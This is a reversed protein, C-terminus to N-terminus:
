VDQAAEAPAGLTFSFTAGAGPRGEARIEGHHRRVIRAVTALGVGTGPFEEGSHLRQFPTFLRGAYAMDFGAGNDRVFFEPRGAREGADFEIRAAPTKGSYKWANDLLNRLAITLMNRDGVATLGPRILVEVARGPHERQLDAVITGALASLDVPAPSYELRM